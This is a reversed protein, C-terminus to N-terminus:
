EQGTQKPKKRRSKEGNAPPLAKQAPWYFITAAAPFLSVLLPVVYDSLALSPIQLITYLAISFLYLCFALVCYRTVRYWEMAFIYFALWPLTIQVGVLDHTIHHFRLFYILYIIRIQRLSTRKIFM